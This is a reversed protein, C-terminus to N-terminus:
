GKSKELLVYIVIIVGLIVISYGAMMLDTIKNLLRAFVIFSVTILFFGFIFHISSIKRTRKTKLSGIGLIIAGICFFWLSTAELINLRKLSILIIFLGALLIIFGYSLHYIIDDSQM